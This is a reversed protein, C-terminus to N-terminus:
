CKSIIKCCTEPETTSTTTTSPEVTSITTTLTTISNMCADLDAYSVNVLERFDPLFELLEDCTFIDYYELFNQMLESGNKADFNVEILCQETLPARSDLITSVVDLNDKLTQVEAIIPVYCDETTTPISTTTLSIKCTEYDTIVANLINRINPMEYEVRECTFIHINDILNQLNNIFETANAQVDILCPALPPTEAALANFLENLVPKLANLDALIPPYCDITTEQTTSTTATVAECVFRDINELTISVVNLEDNSYRFVSPTGEFMSGILYGSGTMVRGLPYELNIDGAQFMANLENSTTSVFHCHCSPKRAVYLAPVSAYDVKEGDFSIFGARPGDVYLNYPIDAGDPPDM